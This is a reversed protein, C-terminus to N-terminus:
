VLCRLVIRKREGNREHGTGGEMKLKGRMLSGYSFRVGTYGAQAKRFFGKDTRDQGFVADEGVRGAFLSQGETESLRLDRVHRIFSHRGVGGTDEQVHLCSMDSLGVAEPSWPCFGKQGARCVLSDDFCRRSLFRGEEMRLGANDKRTSM